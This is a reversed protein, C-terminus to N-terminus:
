GLQSLFGRIVQEIRDRHVLQPLHGMGAPLVHSSAGPLNELFWELDQFGKDDESSVVLNRGRWDSCDSREYGERGFETLVSLLHVVKKKTFHHTMVDELHALGFSCADRADPDELGRDFYTRFKKKFMARLLTEPLARMIVLMAPKAGGPRLAMTNTLVMGDVRDSRQDFYIQSVLGALSQGLLVVRDIGESDLLRDIGRNLDAVTGFGSIDAVIIRYDREFSEITQWASYPTSHGGCFGILTRPGQGSACYPVLTGEVDLEEVAHRSLFSRFRGLIAPPVDGYFREITAEDHM